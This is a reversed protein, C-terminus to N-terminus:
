RDTEKSFLERRLLRLGEADMGPHVPEPCSATLVAAALAFEARASAMFGQAEAWLLAACAADGAGSRNVVPLGGRL